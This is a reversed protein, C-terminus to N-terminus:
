CADCLRSRSCAGAPAASPCCSGDTVATCVWDFCSRAHELRHAACPKAAPGGQDTRTFPGATQASPRKRSHVPPGRNAGPGPSGAKGTASVWQVLVACQGGVMSASAAQRRRGNRQEARERTPGPQRGAPGGAWGRSRCAGGARDVRSRRGAPGGSAPGQKADELHGALRALADRGRARVAGPLRDRDIGPDHGQARAQHDLLDARPHGGVGAPADRTPPQVDPLRRRGGARPKPAPLEAHPLRAWCGPCCSPPLRGTHLSGRASYSRSLHRLM